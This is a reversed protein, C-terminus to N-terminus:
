ERWFLGYGLMGTVRKWRTEDSFFVFESFDDYSLGIRKLVIFDFYDKPFTKM